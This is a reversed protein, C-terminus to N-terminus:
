DKNKCKIKQHTKYTQRTSSRIQLIKKQTIKKIAGLGLRQDYGAYEFRKNSL